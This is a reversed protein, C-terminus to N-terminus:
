KQRGRPLRILLHKLFPENSNIESARDLYHKAKEYDEKEILLEALRVNALYSAPIEELGAELHRIALEANGLMEACEAMGMMASGRLEREGPKLVGYADSFAGYAREPEGEVMLINALQFWAM